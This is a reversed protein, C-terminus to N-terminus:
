KFLLFYNEFWGIEVNKWEGGLDRFKAKSITYYTYGGEFHSTNRLLYIEVEITKNSGVIKLSHLVGKEDSLMRFNDEKKEEKNSFPNKNERIRQAIEESKSNINLDKDFNIEGAETLITKNNEIFRQAVIKSDVNRVSYLILSSVFTTVVLVVVFVTIFSVLFRNHKLEAYKGKNEM